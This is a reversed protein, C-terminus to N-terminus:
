AGAEGHLERQMPMILHDMIWNGPRSLAITRLKWLPSHVDMEAGIRIFENVSENTLEVLHEFMAKGQEASALAPYGYYGNYRFHRIARKFSDLVGKNRQLMEVLSPEGEYSYLFSD